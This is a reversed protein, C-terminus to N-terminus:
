CDDLFRLLVPPADCRADRIASTTTSELDIGQVSVHFVKYVEKVNGGTCIRCFTGAGAVRLRRRQAAARAAARPLSRQPPLSRRSVISTVLSL